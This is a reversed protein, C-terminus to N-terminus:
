SLYNAPARRPTDADLAGRQPRQFCFPLRQVFTAPYRPASVASKRGQRLLQGRREDRAGVAGARRQVAELNQQFGYRIGAGGLDAPRLDRATMVSLHGLGNAPFSRRLAGGNHKGDNSAELEHALRHREGGKGLSLLGLHDLM